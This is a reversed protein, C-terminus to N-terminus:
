KETKTIQAGNYVELNRIRAIMNERVRESKDKNVIPNNSIKLKRIENFENIQNVSAWEEIVNDYLDLTVLQRFGPRFTVKAIQNMGLGLRELSKLKRFEQVEEWDSIGNSELNLYKLENWVGKPLTYASSIVSCQNRCLHLEELYTLYPMLLEVQSWDLRMGILVLVKLHPNVLKAVSSKCTFYSSDIRSFINNTLNLTHLHLLQSTIM